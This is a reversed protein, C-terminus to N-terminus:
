DEQEAYEFEEDDDDENEFQRKDKWRNRVRDKRTNKKNESYKDDDEFTNNKNASNM